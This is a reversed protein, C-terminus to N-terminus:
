MGIRMIPPEAIVLPEGLPLDVSNHCPDVLPGFLAIWLIQRRNRGEDLAPLDPSRIYHQRHALSVLDRGATGVLIDIERNRGVELFILPDAGGLNMRSVLGDNMM